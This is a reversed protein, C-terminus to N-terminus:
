RGHNAMANLAPCSCRSDGDLPAAYQPWSGGAGPHGAPVVRDAPRNPALLNLVALSFDWTFVGVNTLLSVLSAYTGNVIRVVGYVLILAGSSM